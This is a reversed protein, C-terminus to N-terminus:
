CQTTPQITFYHIRPFRILDGSEENQRVYCTLSLVDTRKRLAGEIVHRTDKDMDHSSISPVLLRLGM